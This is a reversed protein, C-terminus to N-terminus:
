SHTPSQGFGSATGPFPWYSALSISPSAPFLVLLFWLLVGSRKCPAPAPPAPHQICPFLFLFFLLPQKRHNVTLLSRSGFRNKHFFPPSLQVDLLWFSGSETEFPLSSRTKNMFGLLCNKRIKQNNSNNKTRKLPKLTFLNLSIAMLLSLRGRSIPSTMTFM